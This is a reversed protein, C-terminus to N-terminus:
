AEAVVPNSLVLRNRRRVGGGCRRAPPLGRTACSASARRRARRYSTARRCRPSGPSTPSSRRFTSFHPRAHQRASARRRQDADDTRSVRPRRRRRGVRIGPDVGAPPMFTRAPRFRTGSRITACRHMTSARTASCTTWRRLHLIHRGGRGFVFALECEYDLEASLRPVVIAGGHSGAHRRLPHVALSPDTGRRRGRRCPARYNLGICVIKDPDPIPPLLTVASLAVDPARAEDALDGLLAQPFRPACIQIAIAMGCGSTSSDGRGAGRRLEATRGVSASSKM